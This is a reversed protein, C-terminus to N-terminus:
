IYSRGYMGVYVGLLDTLLDTHRLVSRRKQTRRSLLACFYIYVYEYHRSRMYKCACIYTSQIYIYMAINVMYVYEYHRSRM